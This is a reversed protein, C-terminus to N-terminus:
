VVAGDGDVPPRRELRHLLLFVGLFFGLGALVSVLMPFQVGFASFLVLVLPLVVLVTGAIGAASWRGRPPPPPPIFPEEPEEPAAWSRFDSPLDVTPLEIPSPASAPPKPPTPEASAPAPEPKAPPVPEEAPVQGGPIERAMLENFRADEPQDRNM